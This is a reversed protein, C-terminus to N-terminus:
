HKDMEDPNKVMARVVRALIAAHAGDVYRHDITATIMLRKRVVPRGAEAVVRDRVAGITLLMPVHAFPTHPAFAMDLGMMGVSTIMCSGFPFAKVGLFGINLGIQAGLFGVLRTIRSLAWTPLARLLPKSKEFDADKGARIKGAKDGLETAIDVVSKRDANAIKANAQSLPACPPM